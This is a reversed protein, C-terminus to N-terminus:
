NEFGHQDVALVFAEALQHWTDWRVNCSQNSVFDDVLVLVLWIRFQFLGDDFLKVLRLHLLM